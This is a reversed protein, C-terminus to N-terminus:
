QNEDSDEKLDSYGFSHDNVHIYEDWNCKIDNFKDDEFQKIVAMIEKYALKAIRLDEKYSAEKIKEEDTMWGGWRKLYIMIEYYQDLGLEECKMSDKLVAEHEERGNVNIWKVPPLEAPPDIGESLTSM